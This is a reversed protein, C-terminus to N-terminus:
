TRVLSLDKISGDLEQVVLQKADPAIRDDGKLRQLLDGQLNAVDLLDSIKRLLSSRIQRGVGSRYTSANAKARGLYGIRQDLSLNFNSNALELQVKAADHHREGQSYYKWLLDAHTVNELSKRELYVILFPSDISMLRDTRGEQLYWDYLDTQFVEDESNDIVDFAESRRKALPTYQGDVMDPVQNSSEDLCQIVYHIMNYCRKRKEFIEARPDQSYLKLRLACGIVIIIYM